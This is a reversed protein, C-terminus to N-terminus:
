AESPSIIQELLKHVQVSLDDLHGVNWVVYDAKKRKVDLPLQSEERRSLEGESWGRTTELRELRVERPADVFVVVDCEADLGAEFLLPADLVLARTGSPARAFLEDRKAAIWPHVVGELRKREGPDGFVVQAVKSRDVEGAEDLIGAGWWGVLTAKVEADRLAANAQRDSHSVVCGAEELILAVATKGAGIGGTLGILPIARKVHSV